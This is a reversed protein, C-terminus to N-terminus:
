NPKLQIRNRRLKIKNYDVRYSKMLRMIQVTSITNVKYCDHEALKRKIFVNIFQSPRRQNVGWTLVINTGPQLLLLTLEPLDTDTDHHHATMILGAGCVCGTDDLRQDVLSVMAGVYPTWVLSYM